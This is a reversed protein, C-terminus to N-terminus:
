IGKVLFKRVTFFSVAAESTAVLLLVLLSALWNNQTFEILFPFYRVINKELFSFLLVASGAGALGQLLGELVFPFQMFFPTGGSYKINEVLNRRSILTLRMANWMILWLISFMFASVAIPIAFFYWKFDEWRKIWEMPTQVVSIEPFALLKGSIRQIGIVSQASASVQIRLSAPLPNGEILYLMEEPFSKKFEELAEEESVFILSGIGEMAAAVNLISDAEAPSPPELFFAEMRYLSASRTSLSIAFALVSLSAILLFSCLFTTALSPIIVLRHRFLGKLAETILYPLRHPM